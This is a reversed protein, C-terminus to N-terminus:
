TLTTKTGMLRWSERASRTPQRLRISRLMVRLRDTCMTEAPIRLEKGLMPDFSRVIGDKRVVIEVSSGLAKFVGSLEVAIYGSGAIMVRQPREELEFFDDSTIGYEHGPCRPVIPRGGTAIVINRAEYPRGDVTVTNRDILKGDGAVWDVHKRKLNGDYIGNLRKVYADRADEFAHKTKIKPKVSETECLVTAVEFSKSLAQVFYAHHPTQTTLVAVRM